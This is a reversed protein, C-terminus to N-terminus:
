LPSVHPTRFRPHIRGVIRPLQGQEGLAFPIRNTFLMVANLTGSMSIMAGISILYVGPSSLFTKAADTL